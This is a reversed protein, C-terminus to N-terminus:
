IHQVWGWSPIETATPRGALLGRGRHGWPERERTGEEMDTSLALEEIPDETVVRELVAVGVSWLVGDRYTKNKEMSDM